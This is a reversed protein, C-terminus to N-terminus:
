SSAHASMGIELATALMVTDLRRGSSDNSGCFLACGTKNSTSRIELAFNGIVPYMFTLRELRLLCSLYEAEDFSSDRAESELVRIKKSSQADDAISPM